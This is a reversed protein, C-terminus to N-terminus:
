PYIEELYPQYFCRCGNAHSCGEVPLDPAQDKQYAGEIQMCAPCADHMVVVRIHGVRPNTQFKKRAIATTSYIRLDAGCNGCVTAEDVSQANCQSCTQV